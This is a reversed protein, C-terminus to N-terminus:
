LGSSDLWEAFFLRAQSELTRGHLATDRRLTGVSLGAAAIEGTHGIFWREM